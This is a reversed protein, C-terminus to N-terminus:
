KCETNIDYISCRQHRRRIRPIMNQNDIKTGNLNERLQGASFDFLALLEHLLLTRFVFTRTLNKQHNPSHFNFPGYWSMFLYKQLSRWGELSLFISEIWNFFITNLSLCPFCQYVSLIGSIPLRQGQKKRNESKNTLIKKDLIMDFITFFKTAKRWKGSTRLIKM